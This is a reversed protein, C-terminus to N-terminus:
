NWDCIGCAFAERLHWVYIGCSLAVRLHWLVVSFDSSASVDELNGLCWERAGKVRAQLLELKREKLFQLKLLLTISELIIM